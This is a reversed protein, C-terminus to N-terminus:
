RGRCNMWVIIGRWWKKKKKKYGPCSSLDWKVIKKRFEGCRELDSSNQASDLDEKALISVVVEESGGLSVEM